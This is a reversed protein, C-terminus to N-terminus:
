VCLEKQQVKCCPRALNSHSGEIQSGGVETELAAANCIYSSCGNGLCSKFGSEAGGTDYIEVIVVKSSGAVVLRPKRGLEM